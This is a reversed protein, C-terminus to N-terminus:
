PSESNQKLEKLYEELMRAFVKSAIEVIAENVGNSAKIRSNMLLENKIDSVVKLRIMDIDISNLVYGGKM